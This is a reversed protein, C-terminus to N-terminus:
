DFAGSNSVIVQKLKIIENEDNSDMLLSLEKLDVLTTTLANTAADARKQERKAETVLPVIMKSIASKLKEELSEKEEKLTEIQQLLENTNPPLQNKVFVKSGAIVVSMIPGSCDLIVIPKQTVDKGFWTEYEYGTGDKKHQNILKMLIVLDNVFLERDKWKTQLESVHNSLQQLQISLQKNQRKAEMKDLQAMAEMTELEIVYRQMKDQKQKMACDKSKLQNTLKEIELNLRTM